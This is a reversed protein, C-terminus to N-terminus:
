RFTISVDAYAHLLAYELTVQFIPVKLVHPFPKRSNHIWINVAHDIIGDAKDCSSLNAFQAFAFM